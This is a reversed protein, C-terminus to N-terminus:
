GELAKLESDTLSEKGQPGVEVVTRKGTRLTVERGLSLCRAWEARGLLKFYAESGYKIPVVRAGAPASEDRWRTKERRFSRGAVGRRLEIEAAGLEREKLSRVRRSAEVASAGSTLSFGETEKRVQLRVDAPASKAATPGAAGGRGFGGAGALGPADFPVREFPRVGPEEVLYATYPTIVGHEKSLRIVENKLEQSEGRLRIEELLFGIRRSAWLRPIFDQGLEREPLTLTYEHKQPRGALDGTLTVTARGSGYYRALLLLQTGSFLDPLPQPYVDLLRVGAVEVRVNALVPRAIKAYFAGVRTELDEEGRVYDAAGRHDRALRDLLLTNVDAGVGFTFLRLDAPAAHGAGRLIREISTEGITPLGDTMFVLFPARGRREEPPPLSALAAQLAGDIATGGVARLARVFEAAAARNAASASVVGPRFGEVDSSFRFINFRDREDLADLVTLLARRAQEMKAGQMSGSTDFVFVVDKPQLAAAPAETPPALMLLAYGDEGPRRHALANLGFAKESTTYYLQFDRTPAGDRSEYSVRALHEGERRVQIEHSPSYVARLPQRSRIVASVALRAPAQGGLREVSLPYRAGYIGGEYELVQSYGLYVRKEGGPPVPFVRAQFAGRGVYELIAPDVQRRVYSEYIRRAEEVSLLRGEVPEQDVTMRFSSVAAGEPLPFLYTGEMPVSNPNHYVQEVEVKLAGDTIQLTVQQSKVALPQVVAIPRTPRPLVIAQARAPLPLLLLALLAASRLVSQPTM